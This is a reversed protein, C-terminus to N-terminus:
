ATFRMAAAKHVLVLAHLLATTRPAPHTGCDEQQLMIYTDMQEYANAPLMCTEGITKLYCNRGGYKQMRRARRDAAQHATVSSAPITLLADILNTILAPSLSASVM